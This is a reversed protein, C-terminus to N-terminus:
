TPHLHGVATYRAAVRLRLIEVVSLDALAMWEALESVHENLESRPYLSPYLYGGGSPGAVFGDTASGSAANDYYWKLVTPANHVASPPLGWGM